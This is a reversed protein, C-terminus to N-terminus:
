CRQDSEKGQGHIKMKERPKCLQGPDQRQMERRRPVVDLGVWQGFVMGESSFCTEGSDQRQGESVHGPRTQSRGPKPWSDTHGPPLPATRSLIQVVTYCFAKM